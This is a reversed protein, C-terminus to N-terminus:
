LKLEMQVGDKGRGYYNKLTGRIEFGFKTYLSQASKNETAVQLVLRKAPIIGSYEKSIRIADRLLSSGVGCNRFDPHTALSSIVIVRRLRSPTIVSYGIMREDLIALKFGPPFARLLSIFLDLPYPKDFSANEIECVADLDEPKCNRIEM